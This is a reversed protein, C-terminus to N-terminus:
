ASLSIMAPGAATAFMWPVPLFALGRLIIYGKVSTSAKSAVACISGNYWYTQDMYVTDSSSNSNSLHAMTRVPVQQLEGFGSVMVVVGFVFGNLSRMPTYSSEAADGIPYNIAATQPRGYVKSPSGLADNPRIHLVLGCSHCRLDHGRPHLSLILHIICVGGVLTYIVVGVPIFFCAALTNMGTLANVTNPGGTGTILQFTLGRREGIM